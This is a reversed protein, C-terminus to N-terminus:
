EALLKKLRANEAQVTKLRSHTATTMSRNERRATVGILAALTRTLLELLEQLLSPFSRRWASSRVYGRTSAPLVILRMFGTGIHETVDFPEVFRFAPARCQTRQARDVVLLRGAPGSDADSMEAILIQSQNM